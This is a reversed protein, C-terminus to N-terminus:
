DDYRFRENGNRDYLVAPDSKSNNWINQSGWNLDGEKDGSTVTVSSGGKLIYDPFIYEQNGTVSLLKWGGLNFETPSMNKITVLEGAKDVDSIIIEPVPSNSYLVVERDNHMLHKGDSKIVITGLLDTRLIDVHKKELREIIEKHPHGYSNGTESFIVAINPHVADLFEQSTSTVSGHHGLKLVNSVLLSKNNKLIEKESLEEADGTFLFSSMGNVLKVVVSYDNTSTYNESNPALIIFEAGNLTYKDGVKPKTITLGKKDISDLVDEFTKTTAIANPMIVKEVEFNDIVDDLGGIHDEHPHTGIVYKLKKIKQEKIYNVVLKGDADNGADILMAEKGKKILTSDAQGVDIFHVELIDNTSAESNPEMNYECAALLFTMVIVLTLAFLRRIGKM